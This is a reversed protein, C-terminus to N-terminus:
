SFAASAIWALSRIPAPRRTFIRETEVESRTWGTPPIYTQTCGPPGVQHTEYTNPFMKNGKKDFISIDFAPRYLLPHIKATSFQESEDQLRKSLESLSKAHSYTWDMVIYVVNFSGDFVSTLCINEKATRHVKSLRDQVVELIPHPENQEIMRGLPKLLDCIM